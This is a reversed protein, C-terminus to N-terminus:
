EPYGYVTAGDFTRLATVGLLELADSEDTTPEGFVVLAAGAVLRDRALEVQDPYDERFVQRYVDYRIPMMYAPRDTLYYVMEPNDTIIWPADGLAAPFDEWEERLRAFSTEQVSQVVIPRTELAGVVLLTAVWVGAVYYVPRLAKGASLVRSLVSLELLVVLVYLPALYRLIGDHTTGADLLLSNFILVSVYGPILIMLLWPLAAGDERKGAERPSSDRLSDRVFVAPGVCLLVLALAGRLARPLVLFRPIVWVTPEFLFVRLMEPSFRHFRLERNALGQGGVIQNRVMWLIFPSVALASFIAARGLRDRRTGEGWLFIGLAGVPVLSVGVYRAIAALGASLAALYLAAMRGTRIHNVLAFLSLLTLFIFLAESMLWAHWRVVNPALAVLASGLLGAWPSRSATAIMSGVLFISGGFLLANLIRAGSYMDIGVAELGALVFSLLPAFGTEPYVEGGGSLRSFGKGELLNRAGMVYRVSDGRIGPGSRMAYLEVAVASASLVILTVLFWSFRARKANM